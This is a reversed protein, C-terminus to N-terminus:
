TFMISLSPDKGLEQSSYGKQGNTALQFWTIVAFIDAYVLASTLSSLTCQISRSICTFIDHRPEKKEQVGLQKPCKETEPLLNNWTQLSSTIHLLQSLPINTFPFSRRSTFRVKWLGCLSSSNITICDKISVSQIAVLLFRKEATMASCLKWFSHQDCGGQMMYCRLEACQIREVVSSTMRKITRLMPIGLARCLLDLVYDGKEGQINIHEASVLDLKLGNLIM